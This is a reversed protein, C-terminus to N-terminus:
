ITTPHTVVGTLATAAAVAPSSLYILSKKTGMRGIFNRNNTGLVVEDDSMLGYPQGCCLGCCPHSVTGGANIFTDIYGLSMAEKYISVTAPIVVLKMYPAIKKDKLLEAAVALDDISGNTCSGIYVQDVKTGQVKSIPHVNDVGQPCSLHPEFDEAKYHLVKAYEADDDIKLWEISEYPVDFYEATKEDAEFLGVKAGAEISMNAMTYRSNMDMSRITSGTFEMSMYTAGDSKIDGLIKLIVDKSYVGEPLDGEVVIKMAEPVKMWLEGSGLTAAMETFGIGTSFCAGGGYTPTHSDTAVVVTGPMAYRQEHMLTHCIGEGMHLKEIGFRESLEIGANYHRPDNKAANTPMLHDLVIVGKDPDALEEFKMEDLKQVVFPTYIDHIMMMDPKTTVIDGPKLGAIGTNKSLIKEALTHGMM